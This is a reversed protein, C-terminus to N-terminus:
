MFFSKYFTCNKIKISALYEKVNFYFVDKFICGNFKIEANINVKGIDINENFKCDFFYLKNNLEFTNNTVLDNNLCIYDFECNEFILFSNSTKYLCFYELCGFKCNTFKIEYKFDTDLLGTSFFDFEQNSINVGNCEVTPYHIKEKDVGCIKSVIEVGKEAEEPSILDDRGKYM